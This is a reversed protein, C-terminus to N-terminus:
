KRTSNPILERRNGQVDLELGTGVGHDHPMGPSWSPAEGPVSAVSWCVVRLVLLDCVLKFANEKGPAINTRTLLLVLCLCTSNFQLFRVDAQFSFPALSPPQQRPGTNPRCSARKGAWEKRSACWRSTVLAGYHHAWFCLWKAFCRGGWKVQLRWNKEEWQERLGFITDLEIGPCVSFLSWCFPFSELSSYAQIVTVCTGVLNGLISPADPLTEPCWM